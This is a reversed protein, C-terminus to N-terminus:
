SSARPVRCVRSGKYALEEGEWAHTDTRVVFETASAKVTSLTTLRIRRTDSGMTIEFRYEATASLPDEGRLGHTLVSSSDVLRGSESILFAGDDKTHRQTWSGSAPDRDLFKEHNVARTRTMEPPSPIQPVGLDPVAGDPAELHRIPLKVASAGTLVTATMHEPAPWVLPWAQTSVALRLVHGAPVCQAISSLGVEVDFVEGVRMPVSTEFGNRFALNLLGYAILASSGDPAVDCLRVLLTGLETDSAMRLSVVPQGCLETPKELPETDFCLAAGDLATQDGALEPGVGHPLWEWSPTAMGLPSRLALRSQPKRDRDLRGPNLHRVQNSTHVSPWVAEGIWRGERHSYSTAPPTYDQMYYVVAPEEDIGNDHGKLWRDWWRTAEQLFGIQPGPLAIHPYTHGWPGVLVRNPCSLGAAMRLAANTYGDAWGCIVYTAAKIARYDERVSGHKWFSDRSQHSLWRELVNPAKEMREIWIRRWDEGFVDPDPPRMMYTQYLAGWSLGATLVCGGMFHIDDCFRDDTGNVPIIAKLSPPRRAAVQLASFASWSMGFMGTTGSCWSQRAIWALAAVCDEQEQLVYEDQPLGDSEGSGAPELRIAAYGHGAFWPHILADRPYTFDRHRFPAYEVVAPVPTKNASAPSWMRASLRRGDPLPIRLDADIRVEEPFDKRVMRADMQGPVSNAM